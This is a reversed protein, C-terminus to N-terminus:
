GIKIDCKSKWDIFSFFFYSYSILSELSLVIEILTQSRHLNEVMSCEKLIVNDFNYCIKKTNIVKIAHNHRFIGYKIMELIAMVKKTLTQILLWESKFNFWLWM